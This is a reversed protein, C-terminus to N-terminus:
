KTNILCYGHIKRPFKNTKELTNGSSWLSRRSMIRVYDFSELLARAPSRPYHWRNWRSESILFREGVYEKTGPLTRKGPLVIKALRPLGRVTSFWKVEGRRYEEFDILVQGVGSMSLAKRGTTTIEIINV